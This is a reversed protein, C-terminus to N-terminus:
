CIRQADVLRGRNLIRRSFLVSACTLITAAIVLELLYQPQAKYTIALWSKFVPWSLLRYDYESSTAVLGLYGLVYMVRASAVIALLYGWVRSTFLLAAAVLLLLPEIMIVQPNWHDAPVTFEQKYQVLRTVVILCNLTAVGLIIAKLDVISRFFGAVRSPTKEM